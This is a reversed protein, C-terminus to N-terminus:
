ICVINSMFSSIRGAKETVVVVSWAATYVILAKVPGQHLNTCM